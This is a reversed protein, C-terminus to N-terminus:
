SPDGSRISEVFSLHPYLFHIWRKFYAERLGSKALKVSM